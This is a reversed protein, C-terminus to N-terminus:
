RRPRPGGSRRAAAGARAPTTQTRWLWPSVIASASSWPRKWASCMGRPGSPRRISTRTSPPDAVTVVSQIARQGLGREGGDLEGTCIWAPRTDVRARHAVGRAAVRLRARDGLPREPQGRLLQVVDVSRKRMQAARDRDGAPGPEVRALALRALREREDSAWAPRVARRAARPRDRRRLARATAVRASIRDCAPRWASATAAYVAARVPRRASGGHRARARLLRPM